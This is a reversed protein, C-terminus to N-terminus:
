VHPALGKRELAQALKGHVMQDFAKLVDLPTFQWPENLAELGLVAPFYRLRLAIKQLLTVTGRLNDWNISTYTFTLPNFSGQWAASRIPWHSFHQEDKWTVNSVHGSNDFGNQSGRM